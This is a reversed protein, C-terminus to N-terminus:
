RSVSFFRVLCIDLGIDPLPSRAPGRGPRFQPSGSQSRHAATPLSPIFARVSQSGPPASGHAGLNHAAPQPTGCNALRPIFAHAITSEHGIMAQPVTRLPRLLTDPFPVTSPRFLTLTYLTYSLPKATRLTHREPVKPQPDDGKTAKTTYLLLFTRCGYINHGVVDSGPSPINQVEFIYHGRYNPPCPFLCSSESRTPPLEKILKKARFKKTHASITVLIAESTSRRLDDNQQLRARKRVTNSRFEDESNNLPRWHVSQEASKARRDCIIQGTM